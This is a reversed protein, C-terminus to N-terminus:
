RFNCLCRTLRPTGPPEPVPEALEKLGREGALARAFMKNSRARLTTPKVNDLLILRPRTLLARRVSAAPDGCYITALCDLAGNDDVHLHRWGGAAHPRDPHREHCPRGGSIGHRVDHCLALHAAANASNKYVSLPGKPARALQSARLGVVLLVPQAAVWQARDPTAHSAPALGATPVMATAYADANLPSFRKQRKVSPCHGTSVRGPELEVSNVATAVVIRAVTLEYRWEGVPAFVVAIDHDLSEPLCQTEAVPGPIRPASNAFHDQVRPQTSSPIALPCDGSGDAVFLAAM